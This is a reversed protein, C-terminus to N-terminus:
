GKLDAIKDVLDDNDTPAVALVSDVTYSGQLGDYSLVWPENHGKMYVAVQGTTNKKVSEIDEAWFFQYDYGISASYVGFDVKLYNKGGVATIVINAM